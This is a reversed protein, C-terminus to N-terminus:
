NPMWSMKGKKANTYIKRQFIAEPGFNLLLGVEFISGKLYNLLQATHEPALEKVAKLEVIVVNDVLLDAFFTGVIENHYYVNIPHEKVVTLGLRNLELVMANQYVKEAFGYGLANYVTYFANIIARTTKEHQFAM